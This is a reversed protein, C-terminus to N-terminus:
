LSQREGSRTDDIAPVNGHAGLSMLRKAAAHDRNRFAFFLASMGESDTQNIDEGGDVLKKAAVMTRDSRALEYLAAPGAPLYIRAQNLAAASATGSTAAWKVYNALGLIARSETDECDQGLARTSLEIAKEVNGRVNLMFRSYDATYCTGFGFEDVRQQYLAEMGNYDQRRELIELLNRYASQRARDYGDHTMQRMLTQRFKDAAPDLQGQILYLEGWNTWLWLNKPNSRAADTFLAEARAYKHQHTYVYGQLIKANVSDPRIQLASDLLTEAQHLGQPSFNSRMAVRALEVYAPDFQPNLNILRELVLRAENLDSDRGAEILDVAAQLSDEPARLAINRNRLYTDLTPWEINV